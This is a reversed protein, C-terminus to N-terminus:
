AIIILDKQPHYLHEPNQESNSFIDQGLATEATNVKM